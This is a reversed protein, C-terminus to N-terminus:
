SRYTVVSRTPTVHWDKNADWGDTGRRPAPGCVRVHRPAGCEDLSRCSRPRYGSTALALTNKPRVPGPGFLLNGYNTIEDDLGQYSNAPYSRSKAGGWINHLQQQAYDAFDLDLVMGAKKRLVPDEAFNYINLIADILYGHYTPSGM